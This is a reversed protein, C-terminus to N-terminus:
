LKNFNDNEIKREMGNAYIIDKDFLAHLYTSFLLVKMELM